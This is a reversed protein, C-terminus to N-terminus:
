KIDSFSLQAEDFSAFFFTEVTSRKEFWPNLKEAMIWTKHNEVWMRWYKGTLFPYLLSKLFFPNISQIPFASCSPVLYFIFSFTKNVENMSQIPFASCSPVLYFIFSFTKNVENV